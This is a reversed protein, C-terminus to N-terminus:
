DGADERETGAPGAPGADRQRYAGAGVRVGRRGVAQWGDHSPPTRPGNRQEPLPPRLLHQAGCLRVHRV